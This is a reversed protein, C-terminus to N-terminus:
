GNRSTKAFFSAAKKLFDREMRLERNENELERLRSRENLTLPPEDDPHLQRHKNVWNTLTGEHVGIDRAVAAIAKDSSLVIKVAEDRFEPSYMKKKM